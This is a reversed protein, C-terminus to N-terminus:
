RLVEGYLGYHVSLICRSVKLYFINKMLFCGHLTVTFKTKQRQQLYSCTISLLIVLKFDDYLIFHDINSELLFM